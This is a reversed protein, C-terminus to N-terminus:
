KKKKSRIAKMDKWFVDAEPHLQLDSMSGSSGPPIVKYPYFHEIGSSEVADFFTSGPNVTRGQWSGHHIFYGSSEGQNHSFTLIFPEQDIAAESPEVRFLDTVFATAEGSDSSMVLVTNTKAILGDPLIGTFITPSVRKWHGGPCLKDWWDYEDYPRPYDSFKM